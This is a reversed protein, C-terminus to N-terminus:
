GKLLLNLTQKTNYQKTKNQNAKVMDPENVKLDSNSITMRMLEKPAHSYCLFNFFRVIDQTIVPSKKGDILAIALGFHKRRAAMVPLSNGM